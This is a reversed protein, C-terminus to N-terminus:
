ARFLRDLPPVVREGCAVDLAGGPQFDTQVDVVLLSDGPGSVAIGKPDSV